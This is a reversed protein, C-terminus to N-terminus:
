PCNKMEEYGPCGLKKYQCNFPHLMEEIINRVGDGDHDGCPDSGVPPLSSGDNNGGATMVLLTERSVPFISVGAISSTSGLLMSRGDASLQLPIEIWATSFPSKELSMDFGDASGSINMAAMLKGTGDANVLIQNDPFSTDLIMNVRFDSRSIELQVETPIGSRRGDGTPSLGAFEISGAVNLAHATGCWTVSFPTPSNICYKATTPAEADTSAIVKANVIQQTASISREAAKGVASPLFRKGGFEIVTVRKAQSTSGCYEATTLLQISDRSSLVPLENYVVGNGLSLLRQKELIEWLKKMLDNFLNRNDNTCASLAQGFNSQLAAIFESIKRLEDARQEPPLNCYAVLRAAIAAKASEAFQCLQTKCWPPLDCGGLLGM